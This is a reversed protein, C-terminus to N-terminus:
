LDRCRGSFGGAINPSGAAAGGPAERVPRCSYFGAAFGDFRNDWVPLFINSEPLLENGAAPDLQQGQSARRAEM